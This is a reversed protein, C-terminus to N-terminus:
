SCRPDRSLAPIVNTNETAGFCDEGSGGFADAAGVGLGEREPLPSRSAPAGLEVEPCRM